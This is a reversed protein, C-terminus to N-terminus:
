IKRAIVILRKGKSLKCVGLHKHFFGRLFRKYRKIGLGELIYCKILMFKFLKRLFCSKKGHGFIQEINFLGSMYNELDKKSFHQYHKSGVKINKSPVTIVLKGNKDLIKHFNEFVKRLKEPQIHELTEISVVCDFKKNLNLNTLDAAHFNINPNFAKAFNIAKKSYDIGIIEKEKLEFCFRGDGCGADLIKKEDQVLKKVLRIYDLYEVLRFGEILDLYHYPFSYESEQKEQKKPINM